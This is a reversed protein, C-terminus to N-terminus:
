LTPVTPGMKCILFSLGLTTLEYTSPKKVMAVGVCAAGFDLLLVDAAGLPVWPGEWDSGTGLAAVMRVELMLPAAAAGTAQGWLRTGPRPARGGM